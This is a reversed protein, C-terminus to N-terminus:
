PAALRERLLDIFATTRSPLLRRGPTICWLSAAHMHWEPLVRRLAGQAIHQHALLESIAVIGAGRAAFERQVRPSNAALAGQMTGTWREGDRSLEWPAADGNSAILPLCAHQALESPHAPAAHRALYSPSAYLGMDFDALKRAVLTGDDPLREAGRLAIDFREALLDVRRPSLDLELRVEPYKTSFELCLEIMDLEMMDPAMSVRLVGRPTAQRHAALDSAADAEEALRHAHDLMREGFDTIAIGRTSRAILREGVSTELQAIRRSITSKPLGTRDAARSFSGADIVRAFLILDNADM